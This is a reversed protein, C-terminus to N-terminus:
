LLPRYENLAGELDGRKIGLMNARKLFTKANGEGLHFRKALFNRKERAGDGGLLGLEALDASVLSATKPKAEYRILHSLSDLITDKDCEAVGVKRGKISKEKPVFANLLGDINENLIDRIRKGPSDPDTLVIVDRTKKVEKILDITERSVASGNTTIIDCDLFSAILDKDMKGEVVLVANVRKM